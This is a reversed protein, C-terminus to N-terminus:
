PEGQASPETPIEFPYDGDQTPVDPQCYPCRSFEWWWEPVGLDTNERCVPCVFTVPGRTRETRVGLGTGPGLVSPFAARHKAYFPKLEASIDSQKMPKYPGRDRLGGEDVFRRWPIANRRARDWGQLARGTLAVVGDAGRRFGDLWEATHEHPDYSDPPAGNIVAVFTGCDRTGCIVRPREPRGSVVRVKLRAPRRM